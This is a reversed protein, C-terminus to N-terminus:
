YENMTEARYEEPKPETPEASNQIEINSYIFEFIFTKKENSLIMNNKSLLSDIYSIIDFSIKLLDFNVYKSRGDLLPTDKACTSCEIYHTSEEGIGMLLWDVSTKLNKALFILQESNPLVGSEYEKITITNIDLQKALEEQTIGFIERRKKIRNGLGINSCVKEKYKPGEGTLLWDSNYGFNLVLGSVVIGKIDGKGKKYSAITNKNVGLIQALEENTKNTEKLAKAIRDPFNTSVKM